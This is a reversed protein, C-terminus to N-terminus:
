SGLGLSNLFSTLIQRGPQSFSIAYCLHHDWDGLLLFLVAEPLFEATIQRLIPTPLTQPFLKM